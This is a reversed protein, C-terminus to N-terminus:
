SSAAARRANRIARRVLVRGAIDVFPLNRRQAEERLWGVIEDLNSECWDCGNADMLKARQNCSCTPSATIGLRSLLKKLESGPGSPSKADDLIGHRQMRARLEVHLLGQQTYGSRVNKPYAPHDVDFDYWGNGLDRTICPKVEDWEYGRQICRVLVHKAHLIM